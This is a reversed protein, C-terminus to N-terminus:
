SLMGLKARSREIDRAWGQLTDAAFFGAPISAANICVESVEVGASTLEYRVIVRLDGLEALCEGDDDNHVPMYGPVGSIAEAHKVQERLRATATRLAHGLGDTRTQLIRGM